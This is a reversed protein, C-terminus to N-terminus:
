NQSKQELISLPQAMLAEFVSLLQSMPATLLGLFTARMEPLNPLKSLTQVDEGSIVVGDIKGFLVELANNNQKSFECLAKASGIADEQNLFVVGIHGELQDISMPLDSKELAKLFVRKRVVELVSGQSALRDRLQWSANPTLANYRTVIVGKSENFHEQMEDLLLQKEPRM